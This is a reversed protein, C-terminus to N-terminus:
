VPIIRIKRTVLRFGNQNSSNKQSEKKSFSFLFPGSNEQLYDSIVKIQRTKEEAKKPCFLLCSHDQNSKQSAGSQRIKKKM